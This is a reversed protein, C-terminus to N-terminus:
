HAIGNELEQKLNSVFTRAAEPNTRGTLVHDLAIVPAQACAGLCTSYRLTIKGDETTEEADVGLEDQVAALVNQAGMLHCTPGWCVDVTAQGPPTFRFNTYFSAVSWVDNITSECFIAIEEIAENPVYHLEDQVALLSSLVTVSPARDKDARQSELARRIRDRLKPRSQQQTTTM